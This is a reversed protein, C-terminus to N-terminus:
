LGFVESESHNLNELFAKEVQNLRHNKKYVLIDSYNKKQKSILEVFKLNNAKMVDEGLDSLWIFSNPVTNLLDMISSREYVLIRKKNGNTFEQRKTATSQLGHIFPDGFCIETFSELTKEEIFDRHYFKDSLLLKADFKAVISHKLEKGELMTEFYPMYDTLIRVIALKFNGQLINDIAKITNTEKYQIQFEKHEDLDAVTKAFAKSIYSARPVSISFNINQKLETSYAKELDDLRSLINKAEELFEAGQITPIIGKPTRKFIKIGITAELEKMSRSLNPQGMFLNQAAKTFSASKEIEIAYKLHLINM